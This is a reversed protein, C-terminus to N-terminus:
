RKGGKDTVGVEILCRLAEPVALGEAPTKLGAELLRCMADSRSLGANGQCPSNLPRCSRADKIEILYRGAARTPECCPDVSPGNKKGHFRNLGRSTPPHTVGPGLFRALSDSKSEPLGDM